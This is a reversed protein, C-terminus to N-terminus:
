DKSCTDVEALTDIVFAYFEDYIPSHVLCGKQQHETLECDALHEQDFTHWLSEEGRCPLQLLYGFANRTQYCKRM